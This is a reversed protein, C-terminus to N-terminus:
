KLKTNVGIIGGLIGFVTGVIIMVISQMNLGFKWNLLSSIIYLIFIYTGGVLGGNFLGNRRIKM